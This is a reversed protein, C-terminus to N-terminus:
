KAFPIGWLSFGMWVTLIIQLIWIVLDDHKAITFAPQDTKSRNLILIARSDNLLVDEVHYKM